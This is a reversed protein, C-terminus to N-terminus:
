KQGILDILTDNKDFKDTYNDAFSESVWEPLLGIKQDAYVTDAPSASRNKEGKPGFNVWSNQGRTETTLARRALPSYMASHMRWATEEGGARFGASEKAHGFVDHVARFIDNVMAPKGSIEFDTVALLPNDEPDFSGSGFGDDTPFIWMHKNNRIDEIAMRPNPYPDDM